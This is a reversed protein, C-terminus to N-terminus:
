FNWHGAAEGRITRNVVVTVENWTVNLFKLIQISIEQGSMDNM